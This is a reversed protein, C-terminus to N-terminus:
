SGYRNVFDQRTMRSTLLERRVQNGAAAMVPSRITAEQITGKSDASFVARLIATSVIGLLLRHIDVIEKKPRNKERIEDKSKIYRYSSIRPIVEDGPLECSILLKSSEPNYEIAIHQPSLEPLFHLNTVVLSFYEAVGSPDGSLYQDYLRELRVNHKEIESRAAAQERDNQQRAIEVQSQWRALNELYAQEACCWRKKDAEATDRIRNQNRRKGLLLRPLLGLVSNPTRFDEPCPPTPRSGAANIPDFSVPVFERMLGAITLPSDPHSPGDGIDLLESMRQHLEENMAWVHQQRVAIRYNKADREAARHAQIGARVTARIM